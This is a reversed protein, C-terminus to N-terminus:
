DTSATITYGSAGYMMVQEIGSATQALDWTGDVYNALDLDVWRFADAVQWHFRAWHDDTNNADVLLPKTYPFTMWTANGEFDYTIPGISTLAPYVWPVEYDIIGSYMVFGTNPAYVTGEYTTESYARFFTITGPYPTGLYHLNAQVSYRAWDIRVRGHTYAATSLDATPCSGMLTDTSMDAVVYNTGHDFCPEPTTDNASTMVQYASLAIEYDTPTQGALGDNFTKPTHDGALYIAISGQGHTDTEAADSTADSGVDSGPDSGPDSGGGEDSPPVDADVPIDQLSSVDGTADASSTDGAVDGTSTDGQQGISDTCAFALTAVLALCTTFRNMLDGTHHVRAVGYVGTATVETLKAHQRGAGTSGDNTEAAACAM